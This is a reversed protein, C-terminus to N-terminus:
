FWVFVQIGLIKREDKKIRPQRACAAQFAPTDTTDRGRPLESSTDNKPLGIQHQAVLESESGDSTEPDESLLPPKGASSDGRAAVTKWLAKKWSPLQQSAVKSCLPHPVRQAKQAQWLDQKKRPRPRIRFHRARLQGTQNMYAFASRRRSESCARSRECPTDCHTLRTTGELHNGVETQNPWLSTLHTGNRGTSHVSQM